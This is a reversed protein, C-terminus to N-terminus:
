APQVEHALLALQETMHVVNAAASRATASEFSAVAEFRICNYVTAQSPELTKTQTIGSCLHAVPLVDHTDFAIAHHYAIDRCTGFSAAFSTSSAQRIV